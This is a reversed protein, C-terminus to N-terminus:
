PQNKLKWPPDMACRFGIYEWRENPKAKERNACRLFKGFSNWSGGRYIRYKNKGYNPKYKTIAPDVKEGDERPYPAYWADIWEAANGAMNYLGYPSVGVPFSRIPMLRPGNNCKTADFTNGWPYIRADTGRAAKEWEEETPLRKGVFRAYGTADFWSVGVVPHGDAGVPYRGDVWSYPPKVGMSDVYLKYQINTVEFKDMYFGDVFVRRQPFEDVQAQRRLQQMSSGMTFEGPPIYVMGNIEPIERPLADKSEVAERQAPAHNDAPTAAVAAFLLFISWALLQKKM